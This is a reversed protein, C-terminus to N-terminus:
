RTNFFSDGSSTFVTLLTQSINSEGPYYMMNMLIRNIKINM